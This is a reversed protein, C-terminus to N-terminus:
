HNMTALLRVQRNDSPLMAGLWRACSISPLNADQPKMKLTVSSSNPTGGNAVSGVFDTEIMTGTLGNEKIRGSVSVHKVVTVWEKSSSSKTLGAVITAEFKIDGTANDYRVNELRASNPDAVSGGYESLTGILVGAAYCLGIDFGYAHPDDGETVTVNSFSVPKNEPLSPVQTSACGCGITSAILLFSKRLHRSIRALQM